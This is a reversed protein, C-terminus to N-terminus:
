AALREVSARLESALARLDEVPRALREFRARDEAFTAALHEDLRRRAAGILEEMAREGFIAQLLKHNLFATGATIGVEAGTLGATHSFVALMVAVGLVNVGLSAARAFAHKREGQAQIDAAISAVWARLRPQLREPLAPDASWLSADAAISAAAEPRESWATATRRAADSVHALALAVVDSTTREQVTAIPSAPSGRILAVLLGRLRGIGSSFFRMIQDAGIFDHWERLVEERLFGGELLERLMSRLAAEYNTDAIRLLAAADIAEHEADDAVAHALPRLGAIAGALAEAALARRADRDRSLEEIRRLLPRVKERALADIAEERDGERVAVVELGGDIGSSRLLRVADDVVARADGEDEPLRNVVSVVPLGRERVRRLVEHPVRDAYRTATTVFVCLDAAEVLADAVERNAVEVSDIDPADILAVGPRAGETVTEIRGESVAGLPGEELLRGADEATALLIARRTTPRLVGTSSASRGAIANMLSSKGAGTPGLLIVVLPLDLSAVRPLIYGRLHDRLQRARERAPGEDPLSAWRREALSVLARARELAPAPAGTRSASKEIVDAEGRDGAV